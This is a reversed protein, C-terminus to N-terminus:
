EVIALAEVAWKIWSVVKILQADLDKEPETIM